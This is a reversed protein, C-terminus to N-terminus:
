HTTLAQLRLALAAAIGEPPLKGGLGQLRFLDLVEAGVTEIEMERPYLRLDAFVQLVQGLFGVADRGQIEVELDRGTRVLRHGSIRLDGAQGPERAEHMLAIFDVPSPVSGGDLVDFTFEASWEAAGRRATGSVVSVQRLALGTALRESWGAHLSGSLQLVHRRGGQPVVRCSWRRQRAEVRPSAPADRLAPLRAPNSAM